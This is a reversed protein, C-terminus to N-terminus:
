PNEISRLQPHNGPATPADPFFRRTYASCHEEIKKNLYSGDISDLIGYKARALFSHTNEKDASARRIETFEAIEQARKTIEDTRVVLLREHPVADLVLSNHRAWYSLYGDLTYLGNDKLIKEQPSHQFLQPRFRFDRMRKWAPPTSDSLSHNIISDLWSYPDRITLIFKAHPFARVLIEIFHANLQSSDVELRLRRDRRKIRTEFEPDSLRGQANDIIWGIVEHGDPEHNARVQDGFLDAISHTGSKAIGVCYIQARRRRMKQTLHRFEM